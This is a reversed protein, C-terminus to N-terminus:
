VNSLEAQRAYGLLFDAVANGTFQGNFGVNGRTSPIDFFENNMPMMIDTGLKVAHAGRLWTLTNLYQVQDTHQYKPMFNPSGLRLNGSIDVGVIGGRVVGFFFARSKVIPGGLNAGFQNQDNQAKAIPPNAREAFYTKSDFQEDRYFDYFTGRIDNTGSKTTVVIAGGPARGYEATFPSTVVKFEDIADISPRSVQTSLEQVNTSISNNDVGDLLFNNQLSRNGHVSVGGTRGANTTGTQETYRDGQVGPLTFLLDDWNRVALPLNTVEDRSVVSGIVASQTDLLPTVGAVRVTEGVTGLALSLDLRARQGTELRITQASGQLGPASVEVVYEGPALNVILYTGEATSQTAAEVGTAVNTVKVTVGPVVASQPDRVVGTLTARDVQAWAASATILLCV